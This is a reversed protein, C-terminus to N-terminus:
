PICYEIPVELVEPIGTSVLIQSNGELGSDKYPLWPSPISEWPEQNKSLEAM